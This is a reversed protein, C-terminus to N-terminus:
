KDEEDKPEVKIRQWKLMEHQRLIEDEPEVKIHQWKLMEHQRLIEDEKQKRESLKEPTLLTRKVRRRKYLPNGTDVSQRPAHAVAPFMLPGPLLPRPTITSIPALGPDTFLTPPTTQCDPMSIVPTPEIGRPLFAKRGNAIGSAGAGGEITLLPSAGHEVAVHERERKLARRLRDQARERERNEPNTRWRRKRETAAASRSERIGDDDKDPLHGPVKVFYDELCWEDPTNDKSNPPSSPPVNEGHVDFDPPPQLFPSLGSFADHSSTMPETNSTRCPPMSGSETPKEILYLTGPLTIHFHHAPQLSNPGSELSFDFTAM